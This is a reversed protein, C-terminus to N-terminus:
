RNYQTKCSIKGYNDIEFVINGKWRTSFVNNSYNRYKNSADTSPKKGVSVITYEPNMLKVASQHYGSDRGHHSAKLIDVNKLEDEYKDVLYEWTDETADGGLVIKKGAHEILLVYSMTNPQDKDHATQILDNNPALIKIGDPTFYDAIDGEAIRMVYMGDCIKTPCDRYKKYLNWDEIQSISLKDEEQEFENGLIWVIQTDNSDILKKFGSLHDMHPHTSIFRFFSNIGNNNLYTIPDQLDITYGKQVLLQNKDQGFKIAFQADVIAGIKAQLKDTETTSEALEVMLESFSEDDVSSSRNIDVIAVRQNDLFEIICCDGHGVNLFHIRLM